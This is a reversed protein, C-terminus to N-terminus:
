CSARRRRVGTRGPRLGPRLVRVAARNGGRAARALQSASATSTRRRVPQRQDVAADGRRNGGANRVRAPFWWDECIMLGLRFGRFVVPGPRRAPTSCASTTSCATIRCNTSPAAPPSARRWGARLRRQLDHGGDRWPGGVILGPGGDATDRPSSPSASGRLRRRLRAQAGSRRASLRRHLVGAHGRLDAGLRAAEARAARIQPWTTSRGPGRHPNLQAIAIRLTDSM